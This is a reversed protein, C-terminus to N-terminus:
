DDWNDTTDNPHNMYTDIEKDLAGRSSSMYQDLEKDLAEKSPAGTGNSNLQRRVDTGGRGRGRGGRGRGVLSGGRRVPTGRGRSIAGRMIGRGRFNGRDRRIQVDSRGNFRGMNGRLSDFRPGGAHYDTVSVVVDDLDGINEQLISGCDKPMTILMSTDHKHPHHGQGPRFRQHDAILLAAAAHDFLEEIAAWFTPRALNPAPQNCPFLLIDYGWEVVTPSYGEGMLSRLNGRVSNIRGFRSGQLNGRLVTGISNRTIGRGRRINLAAIVAPRRAMQIALHRNKATAAQLRQSGRFRVLGGGRRVNGQRLQTFLPSHPKLPSFRRSLHRSACRSVPPVSLAVCLSALSHPRGVEGGDPSTMRRWSPPGYSEDLSMTTHNYNAVKNLPMGM